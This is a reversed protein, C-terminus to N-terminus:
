KLNVKDFIFDLIQAVFVRNDEITSKKFTHSEPNLNVRFSHLTEKSNLSIAGLSYLGDICEGFKKNELLNEKYYKAFVVKLYEEIFIRMENETVEESGGDVFRKMKLYAKILENSFMMETDLEYLGSNNNTNKIEFFSFVNRCRRYTEFAFACHHGFLFTQSVNNSLEDITMIVSTMRNEDFSTIPDDFVVITNSKIESPLNIIKSIFVSLALARKDSESFVHNVKDIPKNHFLVKIAQVQKYGRNSLDGREIKYNRGGFLSFYRNISDFYSDLYQKQEVSLEETLKKISKAQREIDNNLSKWKECQENEEFRNVIDNHVVLEKNIDKIRENIKEIDSQKKLEEIKKNIQNIIENAKVIHESYAKFSESIKDCSLPVQFTPFTKKMEIAGSFATRYFDLKEKLKKEEKKVDFLLLKIKSEEDNFLNASFDKSSQIYVIVESLKEYLDCIDWSITIQSIQKHINAVFDVYSKDFISNYLPLISSESINQGCFPCIANDKMISLGKAIWSEGEKNGTFNNSLHQKYKEIAGKPLEFTEMLIREAAKYNNKFKISKDEISTVSSFSQIDSLKEKRKSLLEKEDTLKVIETKLTEIEESTKVTKKVYKKIESETCDKKTYPVELKLQDKNAKMSKKLQEITQIKDVGEKGLIFETFNEKTTRDETLETGDFVNNFVFETDFVLVHNSLSNNKWGNNDFTVAGNESSIVIKQADTTAPITKRATIRNTSNDNADKFVDCLTSKGYTNLGFIFNNKEFDKELGSLRMEYNQFVGINKLVKINKIM